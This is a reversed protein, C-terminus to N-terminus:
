AGGGRIRRGGPLQDNCRPAFPLVPPFPPARRLLSGPPGPERRCPRRGPSRDGPRLARGPASAAVVSFALLTSRSATAMRPPTMRATQIAPASSSISRSRRGLASMDNKARRRAGSGDGATGGALAVGRASGRTAPGTVGGSLPRRTILLETSSLFSTSPERGDIPDRRSRFRLTQSSRIRKSGFWNTFSGTGARLQEHLEGPLRIAAATHLPM